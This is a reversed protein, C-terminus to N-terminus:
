TPNFLAKVLILMNEGFVWYEDLQIRILDAKQAIIRHRSQYRFFICVFRRIKESEGGLVWKGRAVARRVYVGTTGLALNGWSRDWVM